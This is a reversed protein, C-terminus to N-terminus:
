EEGVVEPRSPSLPRRSYISFRKEGPSTNDSSWLVPPVGFEQIELSTLDQPEPELPTEKRMTDAIINAAVKNKALRRLYKEQYSKTASHYSAAARTWDGYIGYLNLLYRAAYEVNAAPDFAETVNEFADPHWKQNIQMCGVDISAIGMKKLIRVKEIAEEKTAFFYGAGNANVTWPWIEIKGALSRGSEQIGIALLLNDPIEYRDQAQIIAELCTVPKRENSELTDELAPSRPHDVRYFDRWLEACVVAPTTFIFVGTSIAAVIPRVLPM